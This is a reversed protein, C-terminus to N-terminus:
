LPLVEQALRKAAIECYREEREIGVATLGLDKAARLTTGSGMFPDLITKVSPGAKGICWRMLAEPKQTPHRKGAYDGNALPDRHFIRANGDWSCWAQECEAFDRGIFGAGKDWVLFMRSAPLCSIYNGGWIIAELTVNRCRVILESDVVEDDWEVESAQKERGYEGTGAHAGIGYPPDTLLLDFSQTRLGEWLDLVDRCDGHYITIGAHEYYPKM